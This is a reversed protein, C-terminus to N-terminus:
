KRLGVEKSREISRATSLNIYNVLAIILILLAAIGLYKLFYLDGSGDMEYGYKSRTHIDGLPQLQFSAKFGDKKMSEGLYREAFAPMKAQLASVSAGPKLLVYTYFDSWGWSTNAQEQTMGIYKNFNLLIDFRIHSNSPVDDMVASVVYDEGHFHIPKGIPD